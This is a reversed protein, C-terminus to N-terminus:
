GVNRTQRGHCADRAADVRSSWIVGSTTCTWAWKRTPRAKTSAALPYNQGIVFFGERIRENTFNAVPDSLRRKGEFHDLSLDARLLTTTTRLEEQMDGVAKLGSFTELGLIFCESLIVMVFITLAMAVMMEVLTFGSRQRMIIEGSVPNSTGRTM